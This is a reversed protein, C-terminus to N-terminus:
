CDGYNSTQPRDIAPFNKENHQTWMPSHESNFQDLLDDQIRQIQQSTAHLKELRSDLHFKVPFGNIIKPMRIWLELIIPSSKPYM